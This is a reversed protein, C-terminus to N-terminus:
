QFQAVIASVTGCDMKNGLLGTRTVQKNADTWFVGYGNPMQQKIMNPTVASSVDERFLHGLATLESAHAPWYHVEELTGPSKCSDVWVKVKDQHNVSASDPEIEVAVVKGAVIEASALLPQGAAMVLLAALTSLLCAICAHKM